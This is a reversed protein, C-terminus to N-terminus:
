VWLPHNGIRPGNYGARRTM